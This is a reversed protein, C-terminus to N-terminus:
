MPQYDYSFDQLFEVIWEFGEGNITIDKHPNESILSYM